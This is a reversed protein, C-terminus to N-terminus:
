NKSMLSRLRRAVVSVTDALRAQMPRPEFIWEAGVEAIQKSFSKKFNSIGELADTGGEAFTVGGMDFWEAGNAKAWRIMDWTVLYGFPIKLDERRTSGGARYEAHDGHSCVWGFAMMNEPSKDEGLFLGFVQSIDPREKSLKLVARWDESAIRGQTRELAEQQLEKMRDAYAPDSIVISQGSKKTTKRINNRGSTSFSAFIEEEGPKLDIVLTHRYNSPPVIERYGLAALVKGLEDRNERTFVCAQVRLVKPSNRVLCNLAELVVNCVDVSLNAGFRRLRLISFGPMARTLVQEVAVGGCVRDDANRVLLFWPEALYFNAAWVARHSIPLPIGAAVTKQEADDREGGLGRILDVTMGSKNCRYIAEM